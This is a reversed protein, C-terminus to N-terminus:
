AGSRPEEEEKPGLLMEMEEATVLPSDEPMVKNREGGSGKPRTPSRAPRQTAAAPSANKEPAAPKRAASSRDGAAMTELKVGGKGDSGSRWHSVKPHYRKIAGCLEDLRVIREPEHLVVASAGTALEVMVAPADATVRVEAGRGRLGAILKEPPVVDKPVLVVCRVTPTRASSGRAPEEGSNEKAERAERM